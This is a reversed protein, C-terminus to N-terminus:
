KDKFFSDPINNNFQYNSYTEQMTIYKHTLSFIVKVDIEMQLFFRTPVWYKDIKSYDLMINFNKLVFPLGVPTFQYQVVNSDSKLVYAFGQIFDKGKEKPKYGIKWVAMNNYYEEGLYSFTYSNRYQKTFPFKTKMDGRNQKQAKALEEKSLLKGNEIIELYESKQKDNGKTFVRRKSYITKITDGKNNMEIYSFNGDFIADKIESEMKDQTRFVGQLIKEFDAHQGYSLSLVVVLIACINKFKTTM